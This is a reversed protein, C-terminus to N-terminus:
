INHMAKGCPTKFILFGNHLLLIPVNTHIHLLFEKEQSDANVLYVHANHESWVSFDPKYIHM